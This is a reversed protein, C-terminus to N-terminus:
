GSFPLAYMFRTSRLEWREKLGPEGCDLKVFGRGELPSYTGTVAAQSDHHQNLSVAAGRKELMRRQCGEAEGKTEAGQLFTWMETLCSGEASSHRLSGELCTHSPAQKAELISM